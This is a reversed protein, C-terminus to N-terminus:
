IRPLKMKTNIDFKTNLGYKDPDPKNCEVTSPALESSFYDPNSLDSPYVYIRGFGNNFIQEIEQAGRSRASKLKVTAYVETPFDNYSLEDNFNLSIQGNLVLDGVTVIPNFPNGVTVHWQGSPLGTDAQLSAILKFRYISMVKSTYEEITKVSNTANNFKASINTIFKDLTDTLGDKKTLFNTVETLIKGMATLVKGNAVDSVISGFTSTKSLKPYASISTSTGMRIINAIINHMALHPDVGNLYRLVYEFKLDFEINSRLSAPTRYKSEKILNPNAGPLINKYEAGYTKPDNLSLVEYWLSSLLPNSLDDSEPKNDSNAADSGHGSLQKSIENISRLLGNKNDTWKEEFNLTMPFKDFWTVLVSLPEQDLNMNSSTCDIINDEAPTVYRRLIVLRNNPYANLKKCYLFDAYKLEIAKNITTKTVITDISPTNNGTLKNFSEKTSPKNLVNYYDKNNNSEKKVNNKYNIILFEKSTTEGLKAITTKNGADLEVDSLGESSKIRLPLRRDYITQLVDKNYVVNNPNPINKSNDLNNTIKNFSQTNGNLKNLNIGGINLDVENEIKGFTQEAGNINKLINYLTDGSLSKSNPM